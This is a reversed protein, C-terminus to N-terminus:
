HWLLAGPANIKKNKGYRETGKGTREKGGERGEKMGENHAEKREEKRDEDERGENRAEQRGGEKRCTIEKKTRKFQTEQHM